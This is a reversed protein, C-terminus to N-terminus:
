ARCLGERVRCPGRRRSRAQVPRAFLTFDHTFHRAARGDGAIGIPLAGSPPVQRM